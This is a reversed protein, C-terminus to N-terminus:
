DLLTSALTGLLTYPIEVALALTSLLTSAIECRFCPFGVFLDYTSHLSAIIDCALSLNLEFSFTIPRQCWVRLDESSLCRKSFKKTLYGLREM